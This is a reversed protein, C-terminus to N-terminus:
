IAREPPIAYYVTEWCDEAYRRLSIQYDPLAAKMIQPLTWLHESKHYACVALIPRARRMVEFAGSLADPEAGEIDMKMFTPAQGDLLTDLRRCEVAQTAAVTVLHSGATGSADFHMVGDRDGLAFPLVTIRTREEPSLGHIFRILRARNTEDPECAFIRAYSGSTRSRFLCISDGDFAGCDVFVENASLRILDPPFYIHAADDHLPLRGFDLSLRSAVQAAFEQRSREDFLCDYGARVEDARHVIQDPVEIGPADQMSHRFQWYFVSYPMVRQCGLRRLQESPASANFIGVVFYAHEGHEAIAEEPSMVSLGNFSRGQLARNNDAFAVVDVQARKAGAFVISGLAGCGFIVAKKAGGSCRAFAAACFRRLDDESSSLVRDLARAHVDVNTM